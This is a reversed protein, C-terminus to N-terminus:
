TRDKRVLIYLAIGAMLTGMALSVMDKTMLGYGVDLAGLVLFIVPLARNVDFKM